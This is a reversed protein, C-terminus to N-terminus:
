DNERKSPPKSLQDDRIKGTATIEFGGLYTGYFEDGIGRGSLKKGMQAALGAGPLRKGKNSNFDFPEAAGMLTGTFTWNGAETDTSLTGELTFNTQGIGYVRSQVGNVSTSIQQSEGTRVSNKIATDFSVGISGQASAQIRAGVDRVTKPYASIDLSAPSGGGIFYHKRFEKITTYITGSDDARDDFYHYFRGTITCGKRTKVGCLGTPDVANLPNNGVYTYRNMQDDTGIPDAQLFRGTDPDYYRARYYYLGTQADLRRGTYRYPNGSM